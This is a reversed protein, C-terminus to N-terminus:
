RHRAHAKAKAKSPLLQDKLFHFLGWVVPDHPKRCLEEPNGDPHRAALRRLAEKKYVFVVPRSQISWGLAAKGELPWEKSYESYKAVIREAIQEPQPLVGEYIEPFLPTWLGQDHNSIINNVGSCLWFIYDEDSFQADTVELRPAEVLKRPGKMINAKKKSQEKRRAADRLAAAQKRKQTVQERNKTM